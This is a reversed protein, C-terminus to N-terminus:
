HLTADKSGALPNGRTQINVEECLIFRFLELGECHRSFFPKGVRVDDTPFWVGTDDEDTVLVCM